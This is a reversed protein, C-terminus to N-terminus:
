RALLGLERARRIAENRRSASMKRLINRVHTRVTNVSVFMAAAIEETTLLEAMHQLVEREKETLPEIIPQAAPEASGVAEPRRQRPVAPPVAPHDGGLWDNRQALEPHTRVLRRVEAPAERFPRRLREPAALALSRELAQAARPEDGGRLRRWAELLWANVRVDLPARQGGMTPVPQRLEDGRALRAQALVVSAEPAGPGALGEAVAVARDPAGSVIDQAARELDLRETLWRAGTPVLSRAESLCTLAGELDGRARRGRAEVSALMVTRLPDSEDPPCEAARQLHRRATGLDYRESHVWALAVEAGNQGACAPLGADAQVALAREALTMSKRLQGRWAAILALHGLCDLGVLEGGPRQSAALGAGFAEAASDLRGWLLYAAGKGSEIVAVLEPHAALRTPDVQQLLRRADAAATLVADGDSRARAQTLRLLQLGLDAAPWHRGAAALQQAARGTEEESVDVDHGSVARAARVIGAAVGAADPPLKSLSDGFWGPAPEVLLQGVALDDVVYAAAQEWAGAAVAQRVAERVLGNDALWEAAARHLEVAEVPREYALQARLLERFLPHYRYCSPSDPVEDILANGHVLFGFARQAQPGGLVTVLGPRVVDVVSTNLLLERAAPPQADLVEALLYEAVAGTDGTLEKAAERQDSRHGLSMATLILGAAWGKTRDTVFRTTPLDLDVGRRALLEGAEDPTFALDAMRVEVVTDALRYRHLPLLPDARTLVVLRLRGDARRVVLDLAVSDDRSLTGDCDLVLVVPEPHAAVQAALSTLFSRGTGAGSAPVGGTAAIGKRRLGEVVVPWLAGAALDVDDLAVWVVPGPAHGHRVWSAVTVTKGSGAPASVLTLPGETGQQLMDHLRRREVYGDPQPPAAFRAAVLREPEPLDGHGGSAAQRVVRSERAGSMLVNRM